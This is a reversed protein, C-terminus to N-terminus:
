NRLSDSNTERLREYEEELWRQLEVRVEEQHGDHEVLVAASPESENGAWDVATVCIKFWIPDQAWATGDDWHFWLNSDHNERNWAVLAAPPFEMGGPLQGEVLHFRFGLSDSPTHDDKAGSVNFEVSGYADAHSRMVRGDTLRVAGHGRFVRVFKLEPALPPISDTKQATSDIKLTRLSAINAGGGSPLSSLLVAVAGPLLYRHIKSMAVQGDPSDKLHFISMGRREPFNQRRGNQSGVRQM